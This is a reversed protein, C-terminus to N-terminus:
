QSMRRTRADVGGDFIARRKILYVIMGGGIPLGILAHWDHGLIFNMTDGLLNVSLISLATMYGWRACHWLGLAAMACASAVVVMGLVAWLGLVAFGQQARPNLRWLPELFSGPFLLMVAALSAMLTGFVFFFSFLTVGLPRITRPM